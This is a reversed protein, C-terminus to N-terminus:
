SIHHRSYAIFNQENADALPWNQSFDILTDASM